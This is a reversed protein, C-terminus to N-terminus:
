DVTGIRSVKCRQEGRPRPGSALPSVKEIPRTRTLSCARPSERGHDHRDSSTMLELLVPILDRGRNQHSVRSPRSLIVTIRMIRRERDFTKSLSEGNPDDFRGVRQEAYLM